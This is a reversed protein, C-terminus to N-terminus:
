GRGTPNNPAAVLREPPFTLTIATGMGPASEIFFRGGHREILTKVLPLGLGTGSRDTRPGGPIQGFPELARPIDEPRMGVGNDVVRIQLGGPPQTENSEVGSDKVGSDKVLGVELAIQGHDPTFDAANSLLNLLMQKLARRDCVLHPLDPALRPILTQHRAAAPVEMLRLTALAEAAPDVTSELLAVESAEMRSLDLMTNVLGLLHEGSQNIDDAYELYRSNEIPGLLQDKIIASFGIIANLPTRLEHSVNALLMTKAQSARDAQELADRLAAETKKRETIDAHIILTTGDPLRHESTLYWTEQGPGHNPGSNPDDGSPVREEFPGAYDRHRRLREELAKEQTDGITWLQDQDGLRRLLAELTMGVKLPTKPNIALFADNWLIVCDDPDLVLMPVPARSLAEVLHNASNPSQDALPNVVLMMGGDPLASSRLEVTTGDGTERRLYPPLTQAYPGTGAGTAQCSSSDPDFFRGVAESITLGRLCQGANAGALRAFADNHIAIHGQADFIAVGERIMSLLGPPISVQVDNPPTGRAGTM